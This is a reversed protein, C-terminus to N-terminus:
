PTQTTITTQGTNQFQSINIVIFEAPTLLAVAVSVNVIGSAVTAPTNNTSDCIVSFTNAQTTGALVGQQMLGTLYNTISDVVQDWLLSNNPEFLCFQLLNTFDTELQILMRRVALYRSPYGQQLTRGGMIAPFFNPVFRIANINNVNLTDLDSSTFLVEINMLNIQGNTIGAPTQWPGSINDSNAWVGLVAGGPPVWLVSNPSTSAPDAIQIWPAYLTAYTSNLLPNGGTVMNVYNQAVQASTEPFAPAPGDVVVMVNGRGAAWSILSNLTSINTLGPVNLNLIIGQLQDLSTPIVSALNAPTVGDGGGSLQTPTIALPDNVGAVYPVPLTSVLTVFRSGATPSNVISLVNRPDAPNVSLDPFNEQLFNQTTGGQYVQFNFRGPNGASTIGVFINNGWAGPSIANVTIINDAPTNIDQLVLSSTVADSNPISLVYCGTGGNNFYQYVAYHLLNGNAQTLTGYLQTYQNWSSVFTPLTPGMNYQAAFAAVSKGPVNPNGAIPALTENTYIGPRNFQSSPM